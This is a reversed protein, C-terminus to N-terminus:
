KALAKKYIVNICLHGYGRRALAKLVQGVARAPIGLMAGLDSYSIRKTIRELASKAMLQCNSM